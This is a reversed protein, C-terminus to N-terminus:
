YGDREERIKAQKISQDISTIYENVWNIVVYENENKLFELLINKKEQYHLSALGSWGETSLNAMLNSRVDERHGYKILLERAYCLREEDRFLDKPVFSALYWARNEFDEEVWKFVEEVPFIYLAGPRQIGFGSDGNLWDNLRFARSDIPPGLYKTIKWWVEKPSIQAILGLINRSNPNLGDLVTGNTDLNELIFDCLKLTNEPYFHIFSKCIETWHYDDMTHTHNKENEEILGPAIILELTLEGPLHFKSQKGLYYAHHLGLAISIAIKDSSNLLFRIWDEFNEETLKEIVGGYEFIRLQSSDIFNSKALRLILKASENNFGSRWILEPIWSATECTFALEQITDQWFDENRQHLSSFYGSLFFLSRDEKANSQADLLTPLLYQEEDIEGLEFGFQYGNRADTTVLWQLEPVLLNKDDVALQALHKIEQTVIDLRNGDKDIKDTILDMKVYRIILSSFDNKCLEDRFNEWQKTVDPLMKKTDFHLIDLAVTLVQAEEILNKILLTKLTGIVIGVLHPNIGLGRSNQLIIKIAKEQEDEKLYEIKESLLHWVRRYSDYLEKYTEPRWLNPTRRLGQGESGIMRSFHHIELAQDCARLALDRIGKSTSNIAEELIVFREDMSAETPAVEGFGPSFLKVFVGSANNSWKENEAEGLALLLRAADPFLERWMAIKELSYIVERRGITFQLLQAKSWRGITRKLCQLASEPNAESLRMFFNSGLESRLLEGDEFMNGEKLMSNTFRRGRETSSIFPIHEFFRRILDNRLKEPISDIFEDFNDKSFGSGEWWDNLLYIRLMFPSVMLYYHGQIIGRRREYTVADGFTIWDVQLFESLWQAEEQLSGEYGIKQFLSIGTLVRKYSRASELGLDKGGILRDMLGEDSIKIFEETTGGNKIYSEALLTAIRPYGDAFETLRRVVSVPLGDSESRILKDIEDMGLPPLEFLKTPPSVSAFDYSITFLAIRKGRLSFSRFFSEHNQIDCEDIVLIVSLSENNQITNILTSSRFQDASPFYIVRNKLDDDSLAEFVLRTKGIGSLGIIRFVPCVDDLERLTNRVEKIWQNRKEDPIFNKPYKIDRREGWSSYPLGQSLEPKLWTVLSIFREAFGILQDITYVRIENDYGLRSLENLIKQLRHQKKTVTLDAFLVLVYNGGNDLIRKLEPKLPADRNSQEHLEEVCKTPTLDSSKIQFGTTGKPIVDDFLPEANEIYADIGGDGFNICGPVQILNSGIGVRAAEAWLLRRLFEVARDPGLFKLQNNDLSFATTSEM